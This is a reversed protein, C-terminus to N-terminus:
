VRSLKKYALVYWSIRMVMGLFEPTDKRSGGSGSLLEKGVGADGLVQVGLGRFWYM